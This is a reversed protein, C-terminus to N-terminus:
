SAIVSDRGRDSVLRVQNFDYEKKAAIIYEVIGLGTNLSRLIHIITLVIMAVLVRVILKESPMRLRIRMTKFSTLASLPSLFSSTSNM